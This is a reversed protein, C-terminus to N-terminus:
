QDDGISAALARAKAAKLREFEERTIEPEGSKEPVYPRPTSDSIAIPNPTSDVPRVLIGERQAMFEPNDLWRNFTEVLMLRDRCAAVLADRLEKWKPWWLYHDPYTELVHRVVDVPWERLKQALVALEAKTDVLDTERRAMITGMKGLWILISEDDAPAMLEAMAQGAMSWDANESPNLRVATPTMNLSREVSPSFKASRLLSMIEHQNEHPKRVLLAQPQESPRSLIAKSAVTVAKSFPQM